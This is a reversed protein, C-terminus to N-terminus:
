LPGDPRGHAIGWYSGIKEQVEFALQEFQHSSATWQIEDGLRKILLNIRWPPYQKSAPPITRIGWKWGDVLYRWWRFPRIYTRLSQGFGGNIELVRYDTYPGTLSSMRLDVTGVRFSPIADNVKARVEEVCRRSIEGKLVSIDRNPVEMVQRDTKWNKDMKWAVCHQIRLTQSLSRRMLTIRVEWPGAHYKQLIFPETRLSWNKRRLEQNWFVLVEYLQQPTCARLVGLQESGWRGPKVIFKPRYDDSEQPFFHVFSRVFNRLTQRKLVPLSIFYAGVHNQAGHTYTNQLRRLVVAKTLHRPEGQKPNAIAACLVTYEIFVLACLIVLCMLLQPVWAKERMWAM